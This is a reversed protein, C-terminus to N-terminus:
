ALSMAATPVQPPSEHVPPLVEIKEAEDLLFAVVRCTRDLLAMCTQLLPKQEEECYRRLYTYAGGRDSKETQGLCELLIAGGLEAVVERALKNETAEGLRYDAAHVLEHAWTSLNEVGLGIGRQPTFFGLQGPSHRPGRLEASGRELYDSAASLPTLGAGPNLRLRRLGPHAQSAIREKSAQRQDAM